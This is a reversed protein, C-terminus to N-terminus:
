TKGQTMKNKHKETRKLMAIVESPSSLVLRLAKRVNTRNTSTQIQRDGRGRPAQSPSRNTITASGPCRKGEKPYHLPLRVRNVGRRDRTRYEAAAHALYM